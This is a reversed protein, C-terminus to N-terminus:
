RCPVILSIEGAQFEAKANELLTREGATVCIQDISIGVNELNSPNM